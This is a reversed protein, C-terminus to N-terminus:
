VTLSIERKQMSWEGTDAEERANSVMLMKWLM